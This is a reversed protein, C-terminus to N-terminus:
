DEWMDIKENDSSANELVGKEQSDMLQNISLEQVSKFKEKVKFIIEEFEEKFFNKMEVWAELEEEHGITNRIQNDINETVFEKLEAISMSLVKQKVYNNKLFELEKKTLDSYNLTQKKM